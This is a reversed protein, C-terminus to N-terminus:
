EKKLKEWVREIRLQKDFDWADSAPDTWFDKLKNLTMREGLDFADLLGCIMDFNSQDVEHIQQAIGTIM